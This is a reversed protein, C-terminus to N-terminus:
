GLGFTATGTVQQQSVDMPPISGRAMTEDGGKVTSDAFAVALTACGAFVLLGWTLSRVRMM